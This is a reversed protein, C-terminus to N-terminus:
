FSFRLGGRLNFNLARESYITQVPTDTPFNYRLGPEFYLRAPGFLSLEFGLSAKASWQLADVRISEDTGFHNGGVYHYDTVSKGSVCKELMTGVSTYFSYFKTNAFSFNLALPVGLYNLAQTTKYNSDETGSTLESVLRTYVLGSEIGMRRSLKYEATLGFQLPLRHRVETGVKRDINDHLVAAYSRNLSNGDGRMSVASVLASCNFGSYGSMENTKGGGGSLSLSLSVRPGPESKWENERALFEELTIRGEDESSEPATGRLETNEKKEPASLSDGSAQASSTYDPNESMSSIAAPLQESTSKQSRPVSSEAAALAAVAPSAIPKENLALLGPAPVNEDAPASESISEEVLALAPATANSNEPIKFLFVGVIAFSAAIALSVGAALAPSFARTSPKLGKEVAAWLGEPEEITFDELADKIKNEWKNDM